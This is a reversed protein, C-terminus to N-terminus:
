RGAAAHTDAKGYGCLGGGRDHLLQDLAFGDLAAIQAHADLRQVVIEGVRQAQFPVLTFEDLGDFGVTGGGLGADLGPVDDHLDIALFHALILSEGVEDGIDLRAAAHRDFQDAVAALGGESGSDVLTRGFVLKRM